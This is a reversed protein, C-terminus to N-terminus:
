NINTDIINLNYKSRIKDWTKVQLNADNQMKEQNILSKRGKKLIRRARYQCLSCLPTYYSHECKSLPSRWAM